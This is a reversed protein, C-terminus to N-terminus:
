QPGLTARAKYLSELLGALERAAFQELPPAQPDIVISVAAGEAALLVPTALCLGACFAFLPLWRRTM